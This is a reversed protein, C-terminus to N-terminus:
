RAPSRAPSRNMIQQGQRKIAIEPDFTKEIFQVDDDDDDEEEGPGDSDVITIESPQKPAELFAEKALRLEERFYFLISYSARINM